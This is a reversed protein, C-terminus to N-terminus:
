LIPILIPHISGHYQPINEDLVQLSFLSYQLDAQRNSKHSDEKSQNYITRNTKYYLVGTRIDLYRSSRLPHHVIFSADHKRHLIVTSTNTQFLAVQGHQM